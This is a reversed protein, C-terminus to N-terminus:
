LEATLLMLWTRESSQPCSSEALLPFPFTIASPGTHVRCRCVGAANEMGAGMTELSHVAANEVDSGVAQWVDVQSGTKGSRYAGM